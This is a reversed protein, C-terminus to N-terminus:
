ASQNITFCFVLSGLSYFVVDWWDTTFDRSLLPFAIEAVIIILGTAIVIEMVSLRYSNKRRLLYRREVMLLSLIIPMALLNDLYRDLMPFHIDLVKQMLQHIIFLLACIIFVPSKLVKMYTLKNAQFLM